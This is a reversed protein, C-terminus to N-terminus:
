EYGTHIHIITGAAKPLGDEGSAVMESQGTLGLRQRPGGIKRPRSNGIVWTAGAIGAIGMPSDCLEEEKQRKASWHILRMAVHHRV